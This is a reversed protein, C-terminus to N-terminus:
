YTGAKPNKHHNQWFNLEKLKSSIDVNVVSVDEPLVLRKGTLNLIGTLGYDVLVEAVEQAADSTVSLLATKIHHRKIYSKLDAMSRVVYDTNFVAKGIKESSSDFVAKLEFGKGLMNKNTTILHGMNGYGILIINTVMDIRLIREIYDILARVEYGTGRKGFAGFTSLDKRVQAATTKMVQSLEESSITSQKLLIDNLIALYDTLRAVTRSSIDIDLDRIDNLM